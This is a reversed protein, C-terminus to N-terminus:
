LDSIWKEAICFGEIKFKKTEIGMISVQITAPVPIIEPFFILHFCFFVEALYTCFSKFIFKPPIIKKDRPELNKLPDFRIAM